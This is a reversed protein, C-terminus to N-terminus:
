AEGRAMAFSRTMQELYGQGTAASWAKAPDRIANLNAAVDGISWEPRYIGETESIFARAVRGAMSVYMEGSVACDEHCLYGVVPAVLGPGMPPFTSTDVAESMRTVAGPLILNSKINHEAGEIAIVNSLGIMAAKSMAYNVIRQTGYLGGISGTLVVRGYGAKLMHPFAPRVVNFAGMLHVDIVARFDEEPIADLAGYRVNGASHILIDVKGFTDLATQIIATGGEFTAVSNCDAVAKGGAARIAAAAQEAPGADSGEGVIASGNDNIVVSAGLSGLLDAYARGLGRAGGTIVAVRGDFRPETMM